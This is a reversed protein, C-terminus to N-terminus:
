AYCSRSRCSRQESKHSRLEKRAPKRIRLETRIPRRRIRASKRIRAWSRNRIRLLKDVFHVPIPWATQDSVPSFFRVVLCSQPGRLKSQQM